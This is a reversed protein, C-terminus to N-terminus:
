QRSWTKTVTFTQGIGAGVTRSTKFENSTMAIINEIETAFGEPTYTLERTNFIQWGGNKTLSCNLKFSGTKDGVFRYLNDKECSTWTEFINTEATGNGDWDYPANSVFATIKWDGVVQSDAYGQPNNNSEIKLHDRCSYLLIGLLFIYLSLRNM